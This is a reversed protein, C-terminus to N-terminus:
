QKPIKSFELEKFFIFNAFFSLMLDSSTPTVQSVQLMESQSTLFAGGVRNSFSCKLSLM